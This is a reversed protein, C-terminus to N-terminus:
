RQNEKGSATSASRKTQRFKPSPPDRFLWFPDLLLLSANCVGRPLRSATTRIAWALEFPRFPRSENWQSASKMPRNEIRGIPSRIDQTM